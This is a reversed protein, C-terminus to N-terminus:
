HYYVTRQGIKLVRILRQYFLTAFIAGVIILHKDPTGQIQIYVATLKILHKLM